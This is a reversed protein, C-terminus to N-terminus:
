KLGEYERVKLILEDTKMMSAGYGGGPTPSRLSMQRMVGGAV